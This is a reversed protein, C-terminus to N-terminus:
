LRLQAAAQRSTGAKRPDFSSCNVRKRPSVLSLWPGALAVSHVLAEAERFPSSVSVQTADLRESGQVSPYSLTGPAGAHHGQDPELSCVRAVDKILHSRM